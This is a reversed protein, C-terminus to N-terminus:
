AGPASADPGVSSLWRDYVFPGFPIVAALVGAGAMRSSLAIKEIGMVLAAALVIFLLGHIPGVIKM